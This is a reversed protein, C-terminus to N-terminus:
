NPYDPLYDYAEYGSNFLVYKDGVKTWYKYNATRDNNYVDCKYECYYYAQCGNANNMNFRYHSTVHTGYSNGSNYNAQHFTEGVLVKVNTSGNYKSFVAGSGNGSGDDGLDLKSETQVIGKPWGETANQNRTVSANTNPLLVYEILKAGDFANLGIRRLTSLGSLDLINTKKSVDASAKITTTGGIDNGGTHTCSYINYNSQSDAMNTLKSCGKFSGRGIIKINSLTTFDLTELNTCGAFSSHRSIRSKIDSNNNNHLDYDEFYAGHTNADFIENSTAKTSIYELSALGDGSITTLATSNKFAQGYIIRLGAPLVLSTMKSNAAARMAIATTGSAVTFAGSAGSAYYILIRNSADKYYIGNGSVELKSDGATGTVSTVLSKGSTFTLFTSAGFFTVAGNLEIKTFQNNYFANRGLSTVHSPLALYGNTNNAAGYSLGTPAYKNNGDKYTIIKVGYNNASGRRYFAREGIDTISDPLVFFRGPKVGTANTAFSQSGIRTLKSSVNIAAGGAPTYSLNTLDIEEQFHSGDCYYRAVTYNGDSDKAFSIVGKNSPGYDYDDKSIPANIFGNTAPDYYLIDGEKLFNINYFTPICTREGEEVNWSLENQYSAKESLNNKGATLNWSNINNTPATDNSKPAQSGTVYIVVDNSYDNGSVAFLPGGYSTNSDNVGWPHSVSSSTNAKESYLFIERLKTLGKFADKGILCLNSNTKLRIMNNCRVFVNSAFSTTYDTALPTTTPNGSGDLEFKQELTVSNLATMNDFAHTGIGYGRGSAYVIDIYRSSDMGNHLHKYNAAIAAQDSLTWPLVINVTGTTHLKSSDIDKLNRNISFAYAGIVKLQSSEGGFSITGDLNIFNYFAFEGIYELCAPLELNHLVENYVENTHPKIPQQFVDYSIEKLSTCNSFDLEAINVCNLFANHRIQILSANFVVKTIMTKNLFASPSIARVIKGDISDPITLTYGDTDDTGNYYEFYGAQTEFPKDFDSITLYDGNGPNFYVQTSNNIASDLKMSGSEISYYLGPYTVHENKKSTSVVNYVASNSTTIFKDRWNNYASNEQFLADLDAAPTTTDKAYSFELNFSCNAFAHHGISQMNEEFYVSLLSKCDAFAYPEITIPNSFTVEGTSQNVTRGKESPFSLKLLSECKQFCSKEFLTASSPIYFNTLSVCSDFAHDGIKTITSNGLVREGTNSYYFLSELKRCDLFTSPAIETIQYPIIFETINQCFAFAEEKIDQITYPINITSSTCYRFGGKAIAVVDYELKTPNTDEDNTVVSPINLTTPYSANKDSWKIAVTHNEEDVVFCKYVLNNNDEDTFEFFTDESFELVAASLTGITVASFSLLLLLSSGVLPLVKSLGTKKMSDM